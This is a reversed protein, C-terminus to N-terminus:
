DVSEDETKWTNINLIYWVYCRSFIGSVALIVAVALAFVETLDLAPQALAWVVLVVAFLLRVIREFNGLNREIM